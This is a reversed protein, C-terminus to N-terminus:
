CTAQLTLVRAPTVPCSFSSKCTATCALDSQYLRKFPSMSTRTGYVPGCQSPRHL